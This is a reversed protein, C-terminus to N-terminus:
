QTKASLPEVFDPVLKGRHCMYCTAKPGNKGDFNKERLLQTIKMHEKGIKYSKKSSDKFDRLSHCENCTVGIERSLNIMEERIQEETTVFKQVTKGQVYTSDLITFLAIATIFLVTLNRQM